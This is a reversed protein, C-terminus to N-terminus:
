THCQAHYQFANRRTPIHLGISTQHLWPLANHRLTKALKCLVAADFVHPAAALSKADSMGLDVTGAPDHMQAQLPM